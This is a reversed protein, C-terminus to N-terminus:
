TEANRVGGNMAVDGHPDTAPLCRMREREREREVRRVRPINTKIAQSEHLFGELRVEDLCAVVAWKRGEEREHARRTARARSDSSWGLETGYGM